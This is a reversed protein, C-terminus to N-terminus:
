TRPATRQTSMQTQRDGVHGDKASAMQETRKETSGLIKGPFISPPYPSPFLALTLTTPRGRTAPFHSGAARRHGSLRDPKKGWHEANSLATEPLSGHLATCAPEWCVTHLFHLHSLIICPMTLSGWKKGLYSESPVHELSGKTKKTVFRSMESLSLLLSM